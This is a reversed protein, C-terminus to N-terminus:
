PSMVVRKERRLRFVMTRWKEEELGPFAHVLEFEGSQELREVIIRGVPVGKQKEAIAQPRMGLIFFLPRRERKAKAVAEDLLEPLHCIRFYPDYANASTWWGVVIPFLPDEAEEFPYVGGRVMEIAPKLAQKPHSRYLMLPQAVAAAYLGLLGYTAMRQWTQRSPRVESGALEDRARYIWGNLGAAMWMAPFIAAYSVYWKLLTGGTAAAVTWPLVVAFVPGAVLLRGGLGGRRWLFWAGSLALIVGIALGVVVVPQGLYKEIAPNAASGPDGDHWPMGAVLYGLVDPWWDEGPGHQFTPNAGMAFRLAALNPALAVFFLGASLANSAILGQLRLSRLPNSRDPGSWCDAVILLLATLNMAFVLYITGLHAWLCAMQGVAFALWWRWQRRELAVVLLWAALAALGMALAYGRAETSYRLHWPHIALLFAAVFGARTRGTLRATLLGVMAVGLLGGLLAPLRIPWEYIVGDPGGVAAKWGEYLPRALISFLAHNNGLRNGWVTEIWNLQYFRPLEENEIGYYARRDFQGAIAVRLADYEDNYVSMEMRPWRIALAMLVILGLGAVFRWNIGEGELKESEFCWWRRSVLLGVGIVIWALAAAVLGGAVYDVTKLRVETDGAMVKLWDVFAAGSEGGARSVLWVAGILTAVILGVVFRGEIRHRVQLVKSLLAKV